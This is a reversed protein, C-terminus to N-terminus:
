GRASLSSDTRPLDYLFRRSRSDLAIWTMRWGFTTFTQTLPIEYYTLSCAFKRSGMVPVVRPDFLSFDPVVVATHKHPGSETQALVDSVASLSELDMSDDDADYKAMLDGLLGCQSGRLFEMWTPFPIIALHM